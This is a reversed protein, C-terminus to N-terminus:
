IISVSRTTHLFQKLKRSLTTFYATRPFQKDCSGPGEDSAIRPHVRIRRLSQGWEVGGSIWDALAVANLSCGRPNIAEPLARWAM